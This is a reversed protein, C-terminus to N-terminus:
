RHQHLAGEFEHATDHILVDVPAGYLTSMEDVTLDHPQGHMHGVPCNLCAVTTAERLMAGIDHSVIVIAM